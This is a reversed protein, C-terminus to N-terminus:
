ALERYLAGGLACFYHNFAQNIKQRAQGQPYLGLKAEDSYRTGKVLFTSAPQADEIFAEFARACMEEPKAYYVVKLRKDAQASCRFLESPESGEENLMIWKFCDALLTNLRHPKVKPNNLWSSSAFSSAGIGAFMKDGMYHDFAHFWEHALSGAGANKALSLQRTAPMYHASVGPRGGKGYQIGLTGRLSILSEPGQLALMLDGLAQHFKLAASDREVPTVWRGMEIGRFDFQRRIMVFNISENM